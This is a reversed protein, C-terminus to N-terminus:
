LGISVGVCVVDTVAPVSCVLRPTDPMDIKLLTFPRDRWVPNVRTSSRTTMATILMRAISRIGASRPEIVAAFLAAQMAFRRWIPSPKVWYVEEHSDHNM